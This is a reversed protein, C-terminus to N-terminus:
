CVSYIAILYREDINNAYNKAIFRELGSVREYGRLFHQIEFIYEFYDFFDIIYGFQRIKCSEDGISIRMNYSYYATYEKVGIVNKADPV